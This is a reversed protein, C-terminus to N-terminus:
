KPAQIFFNCLNDDINNIFWGYELYYITHCYKNTKTSISYLTLENAMYWHLTKSDQKFRMDLFIDDM